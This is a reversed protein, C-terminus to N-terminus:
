TAAAEVVGPSHTIEGDVTQELETIKLEAANLQQQCQRVLRTGEEYRQLLEELPLDEQEMAEVVAGLRQLAQEFPVKETGDAM